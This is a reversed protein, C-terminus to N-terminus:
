KHIVVIVIVRIGLCYHNHNSTFQTSVL